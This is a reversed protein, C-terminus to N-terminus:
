PEQRNNHEEDRRESQEKACHADCSEIPDSGRASESQSTRTPKSLALIELLIEALRQPPESSMSMLTISAASKFNHRGKGEKKSAFAPIRTVRADSWEV